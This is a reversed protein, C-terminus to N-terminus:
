GQRQGAPGSAAGANPDCSPGYNQVPMMPPEPISTDPVKTIDGLMARVDDMHLCEALNCGVMDTTPVALSGNCADNGPVADHLIGVVPKGYAYGPLIVKLVRDGNQAPRGNAYHM